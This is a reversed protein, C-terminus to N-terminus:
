RRMTLEIDGLTASTRVSTKHRESTRSTSSGRRPLANTRSTSQAPRPLANTRSTSQAPRPLANTRSTSQTLSAASPTSRTNSVLTRTKQRAYSSAIIGICLLAGLIGISLGLILGVDPSTDEEAPPRPKPSSPPTSSPPPTASTSSPPPTVPTPPMTFPEYTVLFESVATVTVDLTESLTGQRVEEDFTAIATTAVEDDPFVVRTNALISGETITLTIAETSVGLLAALKTTLRKRYENTVDAFDESITLTVVGVPRYMSGPILPPLSEPSPPPSLPLPPACLDHTCVPPPSAPPPACLDHTCVPADDCLGCDDQVECAVQAMLLAIWVRRM